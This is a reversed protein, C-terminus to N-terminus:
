AADCADCADAKSLCEVDWHTADPGNLTNECTDECSSGGPTPAGLECEMARLQKCADACSVEAKPPDDRNPHKPVCALAWLATWAAMWLYKV